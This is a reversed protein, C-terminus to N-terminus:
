AKPEKIIEMVEDARRKEFVILGKSIANDYSVAQMEGILPKRKAFEVLNAQLKVEDMVSKFSFPENVAINALIKRDIQINSGKILANAFTSYNM